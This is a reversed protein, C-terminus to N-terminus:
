QTRVSFDEGDGERAEEGEEEEEGDEEAEAPVQAEAEVFSAPTASPAAPRSTAVEPVVDEHGVGLPVQVPYVALQKRHQLIVPAHPQADVLPVEPGALVDHVVDGVADVVAVANEQDERRM